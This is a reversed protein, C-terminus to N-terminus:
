LNLPVRYSTPAGSPQSFAFRSKASSCEVYPAASRAASAVCKRSPSLHGARGLNAWLRAVQDGSAVSQVLLDAFTSCCKNKARYILRETAINGDLNQATCKCCRGGGGRAEAGFPASGCDDRMRVNGGDKVNRWLTFSWRDDHFKNVAFIEGGHQAANARKHRTAGCSNRRLNRAAEGGRMLAADTVAVNRRAVNQNTAFPTRLDGVETDSM